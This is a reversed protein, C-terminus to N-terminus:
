EEVPLPGWRYVGDIWAKGTHRQAHEVDVILFRGTKQVRFLPLLDGASAGTGPDDHTFTATWSGDAAKQVKEPLIEVSLDSGMAELEGRQWSFGLRYSGDDRARLAVRGGFGDDYDGTGNEPLPVEYLPQEAFARAAGTTEVLTIWYEPLDEPIATDPLPRLAAVRERLDVWRRKWEVIGPENANGLNKLANALAVEASKLERKVLSLRKEGSVRRYEGNLGEDGPEIQDPSFDIQARSGSVSATFEAGREDEEGLIRTFRIERKESTGKGDWRYSYGPDAAFRIEVKVAPDETRDIMLHRLNEEDFYHSVAPTQEEEVARAITGAFVSILLILVPRFIM